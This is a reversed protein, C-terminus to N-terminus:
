TLTDDVQLNLLATVFYNRGVLHTRSAKRLECAVQAVIDNVKPALARETAAPPYLRPVGACGGAAMPLCFGM